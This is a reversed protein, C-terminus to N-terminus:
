LSSIKQPFAISTGHRLLRPTLILITRQNSLLIDGNQTTLADEVDSETFFPNVGNQFNSTDRLSPLLAFAGLKAALPNYLLILGTIANNVNAVRLTPRLTGKSSFEFGDVEVPVAPYTEGGFKLDETLRKQWNHYRLITEAGNVAETLGIEFLDIIASPALRLLRRSVARVGM